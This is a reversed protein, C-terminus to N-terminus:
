SEPAGTLLKPTFQLNACLAKLPEVLNQSNEDTRLNASM